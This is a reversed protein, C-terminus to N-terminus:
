NNLVHQVETPFVSLIIAAKTAPLSGNSVMRKVFSVLAGGLCHRRAAFYGSDSPKVSTGAEFDQDEGSRLKGFYQSVRNFELDNILGHQLAKDAVMYSSLNREKAFEMIRTAMTDHDTHFEIGLKKLEASPLFFKEAVDHCFKEVSNEFCDNSVGTDGLLLHVLEHLLMSSIAPYSNRQNIVVFPACRDAIAFGSFQQLAFAKYGCELGSELLVFVGAQEIRKRIMFFAEEPSQQAHYHGHDIRILEQISQVLVDVGDKMTRSGVWDLSVSKDEEEMVARVMSQRAIIDRLFLNLIGTSGTQINDPLTRFDVGRSTEKPPEAVYFTLLPQHYVRAMEVLLSRPPKCEGSEFDELREDALYNKLNQIGLERVADQISLDAKSRAWVLIEPNVPVISRPDINPMAFISDM